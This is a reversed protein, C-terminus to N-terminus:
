DNNIGYKELKCVNQLLIIDDFRFIKEDLFKTELNAFGTKQKVSTKFGSYIQKLRVVQGDLIVSEQQPVYEVASGLHTM